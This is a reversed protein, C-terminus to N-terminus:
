QITIKESEKKGALTFVAVYQGPPLDCVHLHSNNLGYFAEIKNSLVQKGSLSYIKVDMKGRSDANFKIMLQQPKKVPNPGLQVILKDSILKTRVLKIESLSAKGDKDVTAIEYYLYKSKSIETADAYIYTKLTTSNGAAPVKAIESFINGDTSKKVSFYDTNQESFTTWNLSINKDSASTNFSGFNVPAVGTVNLTAQMGPWHPICGYIYTGPQTLTYDFIPQGSSIGSNWPAAGPPSSTGALASSCTTTHNGSSWTFRIVDGVTANVTSPSFSFNAVTVIITNAFSSICLFLSFSLTIFKKM